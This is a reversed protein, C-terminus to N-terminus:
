RRTYSPLLTRTNPINRRNRANPKWLQTQLITRQPISEEQEALSRLFAANQSPSTPLLPYNSINQSLTLYASCTVAKGAPIVVPLVQSVLKIYALPLAKPVEEFEERKGM